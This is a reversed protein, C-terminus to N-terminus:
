PNGAPQAKGRLPFTLVRMEQDIESASERDPKAIHVTNLLIRKKNSFDLGFIIADPDSGALWINGEIMQEPSTKHEGQFTHGGAFHFVITKPSARYKTQCISVSSDYIATGGLLVQIGLYKKEKGCHESWSWVVGSVAKTKQSCCFPSALAVLLIAALRM